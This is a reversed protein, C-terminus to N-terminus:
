RNGWIANRALEMDEFGSPNDHRYDCYRPCAVNSGCCPCDALPAIFQSMRSIEEKMADIADFAERREKIGWDISDRPCEAYKEVLAKVQESDM